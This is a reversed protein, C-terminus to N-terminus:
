KFPGASRARRRGFLMLTEKAPMSPSCRSRASLAWPMQTEVPEAQEAVELSIEGTRRAMEQGGSYMSLLM